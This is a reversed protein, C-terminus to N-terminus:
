YNHQVPPNRRTPSEEQSVLATDLKESGFIAGKVRDRDFHVQSSREVAEWRVCSM